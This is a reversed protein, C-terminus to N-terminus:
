ASGHLKANAAALIPREDDFPRDLDDIM